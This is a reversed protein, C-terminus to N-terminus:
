SLEELLAKAEQLDKTDFGETFWGYIEALMQRAEDRKGQQQWLRSLSMVARLELSKASQKRAIEIAKLFYEEAEAEVKSQPGQVQSQLTLQGKLRYLEAEVMREGSNDVIALAEALAAFAEETQGLKMYPEALLAFHSSLGVEAGAARFAAIGQRMQVIGEQIQGQQALAWGRVFTGEAYFLPNGHEIALAIAAEAEERAAQVEQRAQHLFATYISVTALFFPLALEQVVSRAEHIRKLAQDPYGLFWQVFAAFSLCGVAGPGLSQCQQPDYLAIGPELYARASTLEGLLHLNEGLAHYAGILLTPDQQGQALPLLQKALELSLQCNGRTEHFSWLGWLAWFLQPTEGLQQGLERARAYTREVEPAAWGKTAILPLGLALQLALEQQNREPTDPLTKLLELGKTLHSIAEMNAGRDFAKQGAQQWYPIAQPIAGAETYHHALLEPQTEKTEAFREELVQAIQSHYHQRTSKLLSQYAADQILAHKFLYRTQPVLGSQYLVEAEVLKSLAQQLRAEDVPSVAQLLEYSFERGLTAGLQAIEKGTALRDLRAMLSDHLTAPIALPPSPGTLEYHHNTQRLLGAELVMKTLEEVFLPVGDTKAVIQGLVEAPLSRGGTVEGVMAEVQAHPLRNLTLHSLHSPTSWPPSFEPRYTLLTLLRATSARDLLLTHLELTSPDAWQLDEWAALVPQREAEEALWAGLAEQTKQKQKQPTWTLPSYGEPHPLSLLGAFLPLVEPLPLRYGNLMAELKTLKEQPSDERRFQLLRQVYETVPYFATNQYYPSCRLELRTYGEKAVREKLEQVLRSKGIGAEGSLLVVQGEGAKAKEWCRFLLGLEEDRGVL